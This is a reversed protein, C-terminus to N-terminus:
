TLTLTLILTLTLTLSLSLTLALTLDGGHGDPPSLLAERARRARPRQHLGGQDPQCAGAATCIGHMHM